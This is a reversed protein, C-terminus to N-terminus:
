DIKQHVKEIFIRVHEEPTAPLIGHGLNVILREQAMPPLSSLFDTTAQLFSPTDLLLNEPHFNGQIFHDPFHLLMKSIDFHWDFALVQFDEALLEYHDLTTNRSFFIWKGKYFSAKNKLTKIKPYIFKKFDLFSIEGLSTEFLCIAQCRRQHYISQLLAQELYLSFEEFHSSRLHYSKKNLYSYLTWFGGFFGLLPQDIFILDIAKEQFSFFDKPIDQFSKEVLHPSPNYTLSSGMAELPFLLDSFLIAADFDFEKLVNMTLTSALSPNKCFQEFSHKERLARYSAQYRGAQRM